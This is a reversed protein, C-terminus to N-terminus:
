PTPNLTYPKKTCYGRRWGPPAQGDLMEPGFGRSALHVVAEEPAM